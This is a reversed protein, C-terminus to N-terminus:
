KHHVSLGGKEILEQRIEQGGKKWSKKLAREENPSSRRSISFRAGGWDLKAILCGLGGERSNRNNVGTEEASGYFSSAHCYRNKRHVLKKFQNMNGVERWGEATHVTLLTTQSCNRGVAEELKTGEKVSGGANGRARKKTAVARTLLSRGKKKRGHNELALGLRKEM